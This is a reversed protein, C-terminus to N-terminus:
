ATDVRAHVIADTNWHIEISINDELLYNIVLRWTDSFQSLLFYYQSQLNKKVAM